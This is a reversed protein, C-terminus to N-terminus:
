LPTGCPLLHLSATHVGCLEYNGVGVVVVVGDREGFGIGEGNGGSGRRGLGGGPKRRLLFHDYKSSVGIKFKGAVRRNQEAVVV